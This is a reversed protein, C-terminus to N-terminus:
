RRISARRSSASAATARRSQAATASFARATRAISGSFSSAGGEQARGLRVEARGRGGRCGRGLSRGCGRRGCRQGLREGGAAVVHAPEEALAPLLADEERVVLQEVAVDRERQDLGVAEVVHPALADRALRLRHAAEARVGVEDRDEVDALLAARREDDGLQHAAAVDLRTSASAAHRRERARELDRLAHARPRANACACPITCRSRLGPFTQSVASPTAFIPSKPSATASFRERSVSCPSITPM